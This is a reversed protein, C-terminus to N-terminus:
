RLTPTQRARSCGMLGAANSFTSHSHKGYTNQKSKPILIKGVRNNYMFLLELPTATEGSDETAAGSFGM